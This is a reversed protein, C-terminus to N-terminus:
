WWPALSGPPGIGDPSPTSSSRPCLPRSSPASGRRWREFGSRRVPPPSSPVSSDLTLAPSCDARYDPRVTRHMGAHPWHVLPAITPPARQTIADWAHPWAVGGRPGFSAGGVGVVAGEATWGLRPGGTVAYGSSSNPSRDGAPWRPGNVSVGEIAMESSYLSLRNRSLRFRCHSSM